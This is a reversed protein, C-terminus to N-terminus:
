LLEETIGYLYHDSNNKISITNVVIYGRSLPEPILPENFQMQYENEGSRSATIRYVPKQSMPLCVVGSINNSNPINVNVHLDSKNGRNTVYKMIRRLTWVAKTNKIKCEFKSKDYHDSFSFWQSLAVAPISQFNAERAAAVTGSYYIDCGYNIGCNVGSVVIDPKNKKLFELGVMVCQAPSGDISFKKNSISTLRLKEKTISHSCRSYESDPAFVWIDSVFSFERIVQELEQIGVSDIGDDNTILVRM